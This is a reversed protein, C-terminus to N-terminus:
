EIQIRIDNKIECRQTKNTVNARMTAAFGLEFGESSVYMACVQVSLTHTHAFSLPLYISLCKSVCSWQCDMDMHMDPHVNPYMPGIPIGCAALPNLECNKGMKKWSNKRRKRREKAIEKTVWAIDRTHIYLLSPPLLPLRVYPTIPTLYGQAQTATPM